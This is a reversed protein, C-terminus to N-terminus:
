KGGKFKLSISEKSKGTVTYASLPSLSSSSISDLLHFVLERLRKKQMPTSAGFVVELYKLEIKYTRKRYKGRQAAGTYITDLLWKKLAGNKLGNVRGINMVELPYTILGKLREAESLLVSPGESAFGWTILSFAGDRLKIEEASKKFIPLIYGKAIEGEEGRRRIIISMNRLFLLSEEISRITDSRFASKTIREKGKALALIDLATFEERGSYELSIVLDLIFLQEPSLAYSRAGGAISPSFTKEITYKRGRGRKPYITSNTDNGLFKRAATNLCVISIM